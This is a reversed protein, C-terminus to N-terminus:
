QAGREATTLALVSAAMLASGAAALAPPLSGALAAVAGGLPVALAAGSQVLVQYGGLAGTRLHAPVAAVARLNLPVFGLVFAIGVLASLVTVALVSWPALVAGLLYAAAACATSAAVLLATPVHRILTGTLPVALAMGLGVPAAALATVPVPGIEHLRQQATAFFLLFSGNFLGATAANTAFARAATVPLASRLPAQVLAVVAGAALVAGAVRLAAGVSALAVVVGVAVPVAVLVSTGPSRGTGPPADAPMWRAAAAALGLAVPAPWCAALQWSAGLLPATVLLGTVFGGGGVLAYLRSARERDAPDAFARALVANGLPTTLGASLGKALRAVVLAAAGGALASLVTAAAFVLLALVLVTRAGFRRAVPAAAPIGAVFGLPFAAAVLASGGPGLGLDAGIAPLLVFLSSVEVTDILLNGAVVGAVGWPAARLGTATM